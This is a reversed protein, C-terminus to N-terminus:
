SDIRSITWLILILIILIAIEPSTWIVSEFLFITWIGMFTLPIAIDFKCRTERWTKINFEGNVQLRVCHNKVYEGERKEIKIKNLFKSTSMNYKYFDVVKARADIVNCGIWLQFIAILILVYRIPGPGAIQVATIFLSQTAIFVGRYSQLLSENVEWKVAQGELLGLKFQRNFKNKIKHRALWHHSFM